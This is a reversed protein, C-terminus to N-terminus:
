VDRWSGGPADRRWEAERYKVGGVESNLWTDNGEDFGSRDEWEGGARSGDAQGDWKASGEVSTTKEVDGGWGSKGSWEASGAVSEVVWQGGTHEGGDANKAEEKVSWASDWEQAGDEVDPVEEVTPARYTSHSKITRSDEEPEAIPEGDSGRDDSAVLSTGRSQTGNSGATSHDSMEEVQRRWSYPTVASSDAEASKRSSISPARGKREMQEWSAATVRSTASKCPSQVSRGSNEEDDQIWVSVSGMLSKTPSRSTRRSDRIGVGDVDRKWSDTSRVKSAERSKILSRSAKRSVGVEVEDNRRWVDVSGGRSRDVPTARTSLSRELRKNESSESRMAVRYGQPDARTTTSSTADSYRESSASSPLRVASAEQTWSSPEVWSDSSKSFSTTTSLATPSQSSIVLPVSKVSSLVPAPWADPPSTKPSPPRAFLTTYRHTPSSQQSKIGTMFFKTPSEIRSINEEPTDVEPIPTLIRSSTQCRERRGHKDERPRNDRRGRERVKEEEEQERQKKAEAAARAQVEREHEREKKEAKRAKRKAVKEEHEKEKVLVDEREGPRGSDYEAEKDVVVVRGGDGEIVFTGWTLPRPIRVRGDEEVARIKHEKKRNKGEGTRTEKADKIEVRANCRMRALSRWMDGALAKEKEVTWEEDFKSKRPKGKSYFARDVIGCGPIISM